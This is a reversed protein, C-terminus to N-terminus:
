TIKGRVGRKATLLREERFLGRHFPGSVQIGAFREETKWRGNKPVKDAGDDGMLLLEALGAEDGLDLLGGGGLADDLRVEVRYPDGLGVFRPPGRAQRDERVALEELPRELVELQDPRRPDRAGEQALLKHHLGVLEVHGPRAARVRDQQDRGDQGVLVQGVQGLYGPGQPQLDEDLDM